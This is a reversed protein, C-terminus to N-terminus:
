LRCMRVLGTKQKAIWFADKQVEKTLMDDCLKHYREQKAKVVMKADRKANKYAM